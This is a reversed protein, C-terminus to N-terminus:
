GAAGAQRCPLHRVVKSGESAPPPRRSAHSAVAAGKGGNRSRWGTSGTTPFWARFTANTRTRNSQITSGFGNRGPTHYLRSFVPLFGLARSVDDSIAKEVPLFARFNDPDSVKRNRPKRCAGQLLRPRVAPGERQQLNRRKLFPLSIFVRPRARNSISFMLPVSLL